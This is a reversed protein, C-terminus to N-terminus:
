LMYKVDITVTQNQKKLVFERHCVKNLFTRDHSIIVLTGQYLSLAEELAEIASLDMHNTPEDLFLFPVGAVISKGIVLKQWVGPSPLGGEALSKPDSGLCSVLTFIKGKCATDM